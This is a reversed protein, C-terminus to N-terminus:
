AKDPSIFCEASLVCVHRIHPQKFIQGGVLALWDSWPTHLTTSKGNNSELVTRPVFSHTWTRIQWGLLSTDVATTHTHNILVLPTHAMHVSEDLAAARNDPLVHVLGGHDLNHLPGVHPALNDSFPVPMNSFRKDVCPKHLSELDVHRALQSNGLQPIPVHTTM